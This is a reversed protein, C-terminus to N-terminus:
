VQKRKGIDKSSTGVELNHPKSHGILTMEDNESPADDSDGINKAFESPHVVTILEADVVPAENNVSKISPPRESENLGGESLFNFEDDVGEMIFSKFDMEEGGARLDEWYLFEGRSARCGKRHTKLSVLAFTLVQDLRFGREGERDPIERWSLHDEPEYIPDFRRKSNENDSCRVRVVKHSWRRRSNM